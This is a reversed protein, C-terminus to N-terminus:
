KLSLLWSATAVLCTMHLAQDLGIATFFWHRENAAWLRSTVRSTIYDVIFHMWLNAIVFVVALSVDMVFPMIIAFPASYVAVHYLLVLNSKSKGQAMKDNQLIFDGVFHLWVLLVVILTTM